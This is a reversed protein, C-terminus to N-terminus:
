RRPVATGGPPHRGRLPLRRRLRLAAVRRLPQPQQHGGRRAPHPPVPIGGLVERVSAPLDFDDQLIERYTELVIPFSGFQRPWPCSTPPVAGSSGCPPGRGRPPPPPLLPLARSAAERFRAAFLATDVLQEM